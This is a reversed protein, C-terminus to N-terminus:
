IYFQSSTIVSNVAKVSITVTVTQAELYVNSLSFESIKIYLISWPIMFCVCSVTETVACPVFPLLVVHINQSIVSHLGNFILRRKPFVYRRWRWPRFTLRPLFWRSLLHCASGVVSKVADYGVATLVEFGVYLAILQQVESFWAKPPLVLLFRKDSFHSVSM